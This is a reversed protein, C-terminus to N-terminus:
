YEATSDSAPFTDKLRKDLDKDEKAKNDEKPHVSPEQRNQDPKTHETKDM